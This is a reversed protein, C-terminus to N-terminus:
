ASTFRGFLHQASFRRHRRSFLPLIRECARKGRACRYLSTSRENTALVVEPVRRAGGATAAAARRTPITGGGGGVVLEVLADMKKPGNEARAMRARHLVAAAAEVVARMPPTRAVRERDTHEYRVPARCRQM